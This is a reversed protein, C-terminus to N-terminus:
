LLKGADLKKKEELLLGVQWDPMGKSSLQDYEQCAQQFATSDFEREARALARLFTNGRSGRFDPCADEYFDVDMELVVWDGHTAGLHALIALLIHDRTTYALIDQKLTGPIITEKYLTYAKDFESVVCLQEALQISTHLARGDGESQYLEVAEQYMATAKIADQAKLLDGLQTYIKAARCAGREHNKFLKAAKELCQMAPGIKKAMNYAKFADEYASAAQTLNFPTGSQEFLKASDTYAKAAGMYDKKVKAQVADQIRSEAQSELLGKNNAAMDGQLESIVWWQHFAGLYQGSGDNLTAIQFFYYDTTTHEPVRPGTLPELINRSFWGSVGSSGSGTSNTSQSATIRNKRDATIFPAFTEKPPKTQAAVVATLLLFIIGLM